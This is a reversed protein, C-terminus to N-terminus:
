AGPPAPGPPRPSPPPRIASEFVARSGSSSALSPLVLRASSVLTRSRWPLVRCTRGDRRGTSDAEGHPPEPDPGDSRRNARGGAQDPEPSTSTARLRGTPRGCTRSRPQSPSASGDGKLAGWRDIGQFGSMRCPAKGLEVCRGPVTGHKGRTTATPERRQAQLKVHKRCSVMISVHRLHKLNAVHGILKVPAQLGSRCEGSYRHGVQHEALDPLGQAPRRSGLDKRPEGFQRRDVEIRRGGCDNAFLPSVM